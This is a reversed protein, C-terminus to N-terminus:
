RSISFSGHWRGYSRTPVGNRTSSSYSQRPGVMRFTLIGGRSGIVGAHLGARCIDSDDTYPNSGWVSGAVTQQGTCRCRITVNKGRYSTATGPCSRTRATGGTGAGGGSGGRDLIRAQRNMEACNVRGNSIDPSFYNSNQYHLKCAHRWARAGGRFGGSITRWGRPHKWGPVAVGITCPQTNCIAWVQFVDGSQASATEAPALLAFGTLSVIGALPVGIALKHIFSKKFTSFAM